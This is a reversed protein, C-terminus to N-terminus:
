NKAFLLGQKFPNGGYFEAPDSTIPEPDVGQEEAWLKAIRQAFAIGTAGFQDLTSGPHRKKEQAVHDPDVTLHYIKGFRVAQKPRLLASPSKLVEIRM